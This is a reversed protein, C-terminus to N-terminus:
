IAKPAGHASDVNWWWSVDWENKNENPGFSQEGGRVYERDQTFIAIVADWNSPAPDAPRDRPFSVRKM